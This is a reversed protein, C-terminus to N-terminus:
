SAMEGAFNYDIGEDGDGLVIDTICGYDATGDTQGNVTGVDSPGYSYQSHGVSLTYTGAALGTFSYFGNADTDATLLVSNGNVDTGSLTITVGPVGSNSPGYQGTGDVDAFFYGSISTTALFPNTGVDPTLTAKSGYTGGYNSGGSGMAGGTLYQKYNEPTGAKDNNGILGLLGSGDMAKAGVANLDSSMNTYVAAGWQWNVSVGPTDTTFTAQWTVNKIGGPLGNVAQFEAGGLFANGSNGSLLGGLLGGSKAPVAIDWANTAADYAATASNSGPTVTLTSNPVSISYPAGDATFSITQNSVWVHVPTSSVGSVKAVSDFWIDDGAPIPTSNFNATISSVSPVSRDELAFLTPQYRISPLCACSLGRKGSTKPGGFSRIFRSVNLM